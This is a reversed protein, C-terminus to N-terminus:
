VSLGRIEPTLNIGFRERVAAAMLRALALIDSSTCKEGAVIVNAHESWVYAGGVKLSKAGSEELLKGAPLNPTPNKFVSGCTRPPFTKRKSLYSTASQYQVNNESKKLIVDTIVGPISSSRYCFGCKDAPIKRSDAIVHDIYNGFSDGFAGANMKAWGGITGPIGAMFALEPHSSILSAGSRAANSESPAKIIDADTACDSFWTNTGGGVIIAEREPSPLSHVFQGYSVGGTRFASHGALSIPAANQANCNYKAMDELVRPLLGIIDGAGLLM